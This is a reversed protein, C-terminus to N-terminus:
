VELFTAFIRMYGDLNELHSRKIINGEDNERERLRNQNQLWKRTSQLCTIGKCTYVETWLFPCGEVYHCCM